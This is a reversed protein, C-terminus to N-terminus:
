ITRTDGHGHQVAAIPGMGVQYGIDHQTIVEDGLVAEVVEEGGVITISTVSARQVGTVPVRQRGLTIHFVRGPVTGMRRADNARHAVVMEPADTHGPAGAYQRHPHQAHTATKGRVGGGGQLPGCAQGHRTHGHVGWTALTMLM